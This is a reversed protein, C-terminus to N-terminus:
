PGPQLPLTRPFIEDIAERAGNNFLYRYVGLYLVPPPHNPRKVTTVDKQITWSPASLSTLSKVHVHFCKEGAVTEFYIRSSPHEKKLTQTSKCPVGTHAQHQVTLAQTPTVLLTLILVLWKM